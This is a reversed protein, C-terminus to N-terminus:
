KVAKIIKVLQAKTMGNECTVSFTFGKSYWKAVYYMEYDGDAKTLVASSTFVLKKEVTLVRNKPYDNYDGDLDPVFGRAKRIRVERLSSKYGVQIMDDTCNIFVKKAGAAKKPVTMSFGTIAKAEKMTRVETFPNPMGTKNITGKGSASLSTGISLMLMLVALVSAITKKM